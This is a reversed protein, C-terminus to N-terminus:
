LELNINIRTIAIQYRIPKRLSFYMYEFKEIIKRKILNVLWNVIKNKTM